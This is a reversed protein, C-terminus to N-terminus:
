ESKATGKECVLFISACLDPYHMGLEYCGDLYATSIIGSEILKDFQYNALAKFFVGGRHLIQLGAGRADRELTDLSYTRRHGQKFEADTVAATHEILGMKVAIQRSAAHANPVVLFLRGSDTLWSNIKALVLIPDDVHELTHMLFVCEYRDRSEFTEFTSQIFTVRDEVRQRASEVLESSAEIVTVDDFHARLIATFEGRFCGLELARGPRLFPLFARMMYRRLIRDFDYEYQRDGDRYEENYQRM